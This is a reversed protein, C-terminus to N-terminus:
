HSVSGTTTDYIYERMCDGDFSTSPLCKITPSYGALDSSNMEMDDREIIVGNPIVTRKVKTASVVSDFVYLHSGTFNQNHRITTTGGATSVNGDGYVVKLVSDRSELFKVSVSESYRTLPSDITKGSWDNHDDSDTDTAITVGDESIYGLSKLKSSNADCLEKLTKTMDIFPTPDTGAPAVCSYGGERGKAVGINSADFMIETM